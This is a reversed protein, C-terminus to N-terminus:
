SAMAPSFSVPLFGIRKKKMRAFATEIKGNMAVKFEDGAADIKLQAMLRALKEMEIELVPYQAMAAELYSGPTGDLVYSFKDCYCPVLNGVQDDPDVLIVYIRSKKRGRKDLWGRWGARTGAVMRIPEGRQAKLARLDSMSITANHAILPLWLENLVYRFQGYRPWRLFWRQPCM